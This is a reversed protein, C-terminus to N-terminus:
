VQDVVVDDVVVVVIDDVAVVAVAFAVCNCCGVIMSERVQM